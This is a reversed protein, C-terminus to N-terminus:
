GEIQGIKKVNEQLFKWYLKSLNSELSLNLFFFALICGQELTFTTTVLSKIPIGIRVMM